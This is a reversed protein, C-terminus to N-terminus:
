ADYFGQAFARAAADETITAWCIAMVYRTPTLTLTAWCIAMVYPMETVIQYGLEATECGNLFVLQLRPANKQRLKAIFAQPPPVEIRGDSSEFALSGMWSHGSFHVLRPDHAAVAREVDQLSAAPEVVVHLGLSRMLYKLEQGLQLPRLQVPASMPVRPNSFLALVEVQKREIQQVQHEVRTTLVFANVFSQREFRNLRRVALLMVLLGCASLALCVPLVRTHYDLEGGEELVGSDIPLDISRMDWTWTRGSLTYWRAYISCSGFAYSVWLSGLVAAVHVMDLAFFLAVGIFAFLLWVLQLM